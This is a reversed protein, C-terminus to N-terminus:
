YGNVFVLEDPYNIEVTALLREEFPVTLSPTALIAPILTPTSTPLQTPGATCGTLIMAVIALFCIKLIPKM